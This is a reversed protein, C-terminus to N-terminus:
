RTLIHTILNGSTSLLYLHFQSFFIGKKEFAQLKTILEVQKGLLAISSRLDYGFGELNLRALRDDLWGEVFEARWLFRLFRSKKQHRRRKSASTSCKIPQGESPEEQHTYLVRRQPLEPTIRAKEQIITEEQSKAPEEETVTLKFLTMEIEEVPTSVNNTRM